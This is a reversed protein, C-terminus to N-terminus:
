APKSKIGGAELIADTAREVSQRVPDSDLRSYVQTAALSKHNLSKGIIILSAGTKAQWSGLTRRLDHLRLNDIGARKLIRSWGKKPEVLHGKKGTGPFVFLSGKDNRADLIRIVEDILMVTQPDGNKTRPIRWEKRAFSLEDWRMALVNAQRAGTLLSLLVYDRITSNPEQYLAEFFRPLEDTQLFRDRSRVANRKVGKAPNEECLGVSIGWNFVASVLDLIRNATAGSKLKPKGEGDKKGKAPQKTIRAHITAIDAKTIESHRKHGLPKDLYCQYRGEDKKWTRSKYKAHGDLYRDFLEKFTLEAKHVRKVQAPNAGSAIEANVALAMKRANEISLDPYRGLTVREPAGGKIRRFVSFTKVGTPSVRCQLGVVKTDLLVLRTKKPANAAEIAAKTFNVKQGM